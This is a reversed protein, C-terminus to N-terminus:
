QLFRDCRVKHRKDPNYDRKGLNNDCCLFLFLTIAAVEAANRTTVNNIMKKANISGNLHAQEGNPLMKEPLFALFHIKRLRASFL